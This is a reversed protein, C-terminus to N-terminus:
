SKIFYFLAPANEPEWGEQSTHGQKVVCTKNNRRIKYDAAYEVGARWEEYLEPCKVAVADMLSQAAQIIFARLEKAREITINM